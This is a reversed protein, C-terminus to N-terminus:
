IRKSIEWIYSSIIKYIDKLDDREGLMELHRQQTLLDGRRAAGTQAERPSSGEVFGKAVCEEVLERYLELPLDGMELVEATASLMANTFNCAFVAALHLVRRRESDLEIVRDSLANAVSRIRADEGEVFIPVRRFDVRRGSTFTQMPYIVGDFGEMAVSGACHVVISGEPCRSRIAEGVESVAGDSVAVVYIDASAFSEIAAGQCGAMAALEAVRLENRGVIQRLEVEASGCEMLTLALAEAVNGSGVISVGIM